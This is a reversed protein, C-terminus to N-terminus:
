QVGGALKLYEKNKTKLNELLKLYQEKLLKDEVTKRLISDKLIWITLHPRGSTEKIIIDRTKDIDGLLYLAKIKLIIEHDIFPFQLNADNFAQQAMTFNGAESAAISLLYCSGDKLQNCASTLFNIAKEKDPSTDNKGYFFHEGAKKCSLPHTEKECNEVLNQINNEEGTMLRKELCAKEDGLFCANDFLAYSFVKNNYGTLGVNLNVGYINCSQKEGLVCGKEFYKFSDTYNGDIMKMIGVIECIGGRYNENCRKIMFNEVLPFLYIPLLIGMTM